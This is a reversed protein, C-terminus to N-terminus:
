RPAGAPSVSVLGPGDTAQVYYDIRPEPRSDPSPRRTSAAPRADDADETWLGCNARYFLKASAVTSPDTITAPIAYPGATDTTAGPQTVNTIAPGAIDTLYFDQVTTENSTVVIREAETQFGRSRPRPTTTGPRPPAATRAWRTPRHVARRDRHAEGERGPAARQGLERQLRARRGPRLRRHGRHRAAQADVFGWGYTNDEGATGEDRATEMLIQKITTSTSTPTPRASSPSSAPSTRAPWRPATGTATTAAAPSRPTSAARRPRVVEPKIKQPAPVNCGSPGRSSFSAIAYPFQQGAQASVAGVSFCNTLTTARDAPSRLTGAGSGENGASWVTVVGAAECNDIM